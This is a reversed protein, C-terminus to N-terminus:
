RGHRRRITIVLFLAIGGALAACIAPEPVTALSWNDISAFSPHAGSSVGFGAYQTRATTFIGTSTWTYTTGDLTFDYISGASGTVSGDIDISYTLTHSISADWTGIYSQSETAASGSTGHGSWLNVKGEPTIFFGYMNLSSDTATQTTSWFGLYVGRGDRLPSSNVITGMNFTMSIIYSSAPTFNEDAALSIAAGINTKMTAYSSTENSTVTPTYNGNSDTGQRVYTRGSITTAPTSGILNSTESGRVFDDYILTQGIAAAAGLLLTIAVCLTARLAPHSPKM